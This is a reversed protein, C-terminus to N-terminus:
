GEAPPEELARRPAPTYAAAMATVAAVLGTWAAVKDGEIVGYATAVVLGATALNYIWLRFRPDRITRM